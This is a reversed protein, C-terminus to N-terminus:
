TITMVSQQPHHGAHNAAAPCRRALLADAQNLEALQYQARFSDAAKLEAAPELINRIVPLVADPQTQLLSETVTFREAVWPGQYLLAAADELVM